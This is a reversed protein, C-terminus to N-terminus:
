AKEHGITERQKTEIPDFTEETNKQTATRMGLEDKDEDQGLVLINEWSVRGSTAKVPASM